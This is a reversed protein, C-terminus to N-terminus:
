SGARALANVGTVVRELDRTLLSPHVPLSLVSRAAEDTDGLARAPAFRSLSELRHCPIPYYVGSGVGHEQALAAVFRDRDEVRITYQHYVHVA